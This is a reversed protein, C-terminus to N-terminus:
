LVGQIVGLIFINWAFHVGINAMNTQPSYKDRVALFIMGLPVYVLMVLIEGGSAYWHFSAFVVAQFLAIVWGTVRRQRLENVFRSRFILEEDFAVVLATFLLVGISVGSLAQAIAPLAQGKVIIGLPTLIALTVGAFIFFKLIGEKSFFSAQFLPSETRRSAPSDFAFVFAMFVMYTIIRTQYDLEADPFFLKANIFLFAHAILLALGVTIGKILSREKM